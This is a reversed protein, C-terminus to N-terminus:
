ARRSVNTPPALSAVLQLLHQPNLETPVLRELRGPPVPPFFEEITIGSGELALANDEHFHQRLIEAQETSLSMKQRGDDAELMRNFAATLMRIQGRQLTPGTEEARLNLQRMFEVARYDLGENEPSYLTMGERKAGITRLFDLFVEGEPWIKPDFPRVIVNSAGFIARWPALRRGFYLGKAEVHDGFGFPRLRGGKIQEQYSSLFYSDQRRVYAIVTIQSDPFLDKLWRIKKQGMAPEGFGESSLILTEAEDRGIREQLATYAQGLTKRKQSMLWSLRLGPVAAALPVHQWRQTYAAQPDYPYLIGQQALAAANLALSKQLSTSGTKYFGIHLFLRKM